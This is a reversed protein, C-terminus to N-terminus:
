GGDLAERTQENMAWRTRKGCYGCLINTEDTM